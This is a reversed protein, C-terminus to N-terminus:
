DELRKREMKKRAKIQREAHKKKRRENRCELRHQKVKQKNKGQRNVVPRM